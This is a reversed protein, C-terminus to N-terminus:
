EDELRFQTTHRENTNADEAELRLETDGLTFYVWFRKNLNNPNDADQFVIRFKGVFFCSDDTVYTPEPETSGYVPFSIGKTVSPVRRSDSRVQENLKMQRGYEIIKIFCGRCRPRGKSNYWLKDVPDFGDQFHRHGEIGYTYPSIREIIASPKYGFVVAGKLVTLVADTPVVVNMIPFSMKVTEHVISSESLGGVMIVTKIGKVVDMRLLESIHKTINDTAVSFLKKMLAAKIRLKNGREPTVFNSLTSKQVATKLSSETEEVYTEVLTTPLSIITDNETSTSIGRKKVEFTRFIDIYDDMNEKRFKKFVNQGFLKVLIDKYAEDVNIGGWDGGSAKYLERLNGDHIVEHVSVDM